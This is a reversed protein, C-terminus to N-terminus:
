LFVLRKNKELNKKKDGIGVKRINNEAKLLAMNKRM